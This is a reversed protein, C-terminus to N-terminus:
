ESSGDQNAFRAAARQYAGLLSGGSSGYGGSSPRSFRRQKDAETRVWNRWTTDWRRKTANRGAAGHWHDRFRAIEREVQADSLGEKRAFEILEETPYWDEPLRTGRATPTEALRENLDIVEAGPEEDEVLEAEVTEIEEGAGGTEGTTPPNLPPSNPTQPSLPPTDLPSSPVDCIDRGTVTVDRSLKRNARSKAQRQADKERKAALRAEEQAIQQCEVAEVAAAIQEVTAGTAALAKILEALMAM